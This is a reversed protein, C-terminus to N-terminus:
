KNVSSVVKLVANAYATPAELMPYHGINPLVSLTNSQIKDELVYAMEIVAIPDKDAWLINIHKDTQELGGIWRHWFKKRENIYQSIMPLVSRGNNFILMEWLVDLEKYNIKSRDHWLKRFSNVLIPKRSLNAIIPGFFSHKLLKQTVLLQAMNILMSGNGLTITKLTIPEYGQNYRAIIETGISTGYDHALLHVENMNLKKWVALAIDAQEILSYSYNIPKDSLGFGLHDHIIVRYKKTLIPLIAYYDYSCSPYGHLIGIVEDGTGEDIVFVKQQNIEIYQGRSQWDSFSPTSISDKM